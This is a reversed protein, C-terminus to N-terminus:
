LKLSQMYDDFGAEAFRFWLNQDRRFASYDDYIKKWNANKANLEGYLETSAKYAADMIEKPLRHLQTGSAVLEKLAKPNKADYKAQMDTHAIAAACELM